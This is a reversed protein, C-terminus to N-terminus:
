EALEDVAPMGRSASWTHDLLLWLLPLGSSFLVRATHLPLSKPDLSFPFAYIALVTCSYVLTTRRLPGNKTLVGFPLMWTIYWPWIRASYFVVLALTLWLYTELLDQVTAAVERAVGVTPSSIDESFSKERADESRRGRTRMALRALFSLCYITYIVAIATRLWTLKPSGYVWLFDPFGYGLMHAILSHFSHANTLFHPNTLARLARGSRLCTEWTMWLLGGAVLLGGLAGAWRRWVAMVTGETAMLLLAVPKVLVGLVALTLAQIGARTRQRAQLFRELSALCLFVYLLDCHGNDVTELLILPNCLYAWAACEPTFWSRAATHVNSGYVSARRTEDQLMGAIRWIFWGNLLHIGLWCLKLFYFSCPVSVTSLYGAILLFPAVVPGYPMPYPYWAYPSYADVIHQYGHVWPNMHYIAMLRGYAVYALIDNSHVGPYCAWAVTGLLTGSRLVTKWDLQEWRKLVLFYLLFLVACISVCSFQLSMDIEHRFIAQSGRTAGASLDIGTFSLWWLGTWGVVTAPLILSRYASKNRAEPAAPM